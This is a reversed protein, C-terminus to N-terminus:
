SEETANQKENYKKSKEREREKEKGGKKERQFYYGFLL